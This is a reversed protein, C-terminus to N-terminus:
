GNYAKIAEVNNLDLEIERVQIIANCGFADVDINVSIINDIPEGTEANVIQTEQPNGTYIMKLKM